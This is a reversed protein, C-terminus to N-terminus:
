QQTGGTIPCTCGTCENKGQYFDYKNAYSPFTFVCSSTGNTTCTSLRGCDGRPNAAVFKNLQDIYIAQTKRKKITDSADM